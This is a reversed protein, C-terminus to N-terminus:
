PLCAGLQVFTPLEITMEHMKVVLLQAKLQRNNFM